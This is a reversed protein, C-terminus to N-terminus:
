HPAQRPVGSAAIRPPLSQRLLCGTFIHRIIEAAVRATAVATMVVCDGMACVGAGGGAAGCGFVGPGSGHTGSFWAVAGTAVLPVTAVGSFEDFGRGVRGWSEVPVFDGVSREVVGSEPAAFGSLEGLAVLVTGQGGPVAGSRVAGGAIGAVGGAGGATGAFGGVGGAGIWVGGSVGVGGAGGRGGVVASGTGGCGPVGGAGGVVFV